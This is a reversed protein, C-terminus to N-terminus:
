KPYLFMSQTCVIRINQGNSYNGGFFCGAGGGGGGAAAAAGAGAGGATDRKGLSQAPPGDMIINIWLIQMANLPAPLGLLTAFAVIFLAAFSTSLQFKLFNRINFFICKGEQIAVVITSLEDDVLIMSAAEKSVDTGAIGMAIGIDAMQLAPADNVGDGTMAVVDGNKQLAAVVVQKHRPAMRYFVRCGGNRTIELHLAEEELKNLTGGSLVDLEAGSMCRNNEENHLGLEVSVGSGAGGTGDGGGGTGGSTGGGTGGGGTSGGGGGHLIGVERAIALATGKADGTMMITRVGYQKLRAITPQSGARPPDSLGVLGLFTL